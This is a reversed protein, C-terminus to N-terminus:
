LSEVTFREIMGTLQFERELTQKLEEARDREVQPGVFVATLTGQTTDVQRSYVKYGRSALRQSLNRANETNSFTGLRVSWGAPLGTTEILISTPKEDANAPVPGATDPTPTNNGSSIPIPETLVVNNDEITSAIVAREAPIVVRQPVATPMAQVEPPTPIRSSLPRQYSGDGDFILPLFILALALLVITGVVRQKTGQNV